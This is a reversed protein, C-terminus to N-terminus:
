RRHVYPELETAYGLRSPHRPHGEVTTGLCWLEVNIRELQEVVRTSIADFAPDRQVGWAVVIKTAALACHLIAEENRRAIDAPQYLPPGHQALWVWLDLPDTARYSFMNVMEVAGGGMGWRAAFGVSKMVTLDNTREDAKSPNLAIFLARGGKSEIGAMDPVDRWLRFRHLRDESLIAGGGPRPEFLQGQDPQM